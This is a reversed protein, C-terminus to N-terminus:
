GGADEALRALRTLANAMRDRRNRLTFWGTLRDRLGTITQTERWELRTAGGTKLPTLTVAIIKPGLRSDRAVAWSQPPDIATQEEAVQWRLDARRMYLLRTAGAAEPAGTLRGYDILGPEWAIRRAGDTLWAFVAAPPANIDQSLELSWSSRLAQWTFFGAAVTLMLWFLGIAAWEWPDRYRWNM